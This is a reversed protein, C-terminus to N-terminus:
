SEDDPDDISGYTEVFEAGLQEWIDRYTKNTFLHDVLPYNDDCDYFNVHTAEYYFALLLEILDLFPVGDNWSIHNTVSEFGDNPVITPSGFSHVRIMKREEALLLEKARLSEAAGISHGYHIILGGADTGGMETALFKWKEALAHAQPTIYGMFKVLGCQLIDYTWGLTPRYVFHVNNHGHTDSIMQTQLICEEFPTLIGGIYSLRVNSSVEGRGVVGTQVSEPHFGTMVFRTDGILYRLFDELCERTFGMDELRQSLSFPSLGLYYSLSDYLESTSTFLMDWLSNWSFLGYHDVANMPDDRLFSYPNLGDYNALPDKTMWRGLKPDYFRYGFNLLGTSTNSRKSSFRWPNNLATDGIVEGEQNYILEEGHASYRYGEELEQTNPDILCTLSGRHDHIPALIRKRKGQLEIAIASGIEAGLGVGLVRLQNIEGEANMSGIENLGDYLHNEESSYKWKKTNSDWEHYIEKLCRNFADYQYNLLFSDKKLISRLRNLADYEYAYSETPSMKTLLNGNLDYTYFSDGDSILRNTGADYTSDKGETKRNSLSDYSYSAETHNLESTLRGLEDYTYHQDSVGLTDSSTMQTIRGDEDYGERPISANWFASTIETCKGDEYNKKLAGAKGIMQSELVQGDIQYKLYRHTYLKQNKSSLREITKLYASDYAYRIASGDPLTFFTRRGLHDYSYSLSSIAGIKEETTEGFSNYSRSVNEETLADETNILQGIADYTYRYDISRDSSYFRELRAQQNYEYYLSVGDAKHTAQVQGYANYEYSTRAQDKEGVAYIVASLAGSPLYEWATTVSNLRNGNEIIASIEETKRGLADYRYEVESLLVGISSRQVINEVRGLADYTSTTPAKNANGTIVQRVVQGRDNVTTLDALIEPKVEKHAEKRHLVEGTDTEIRLAELSQNEDREFITMRKSDPSQPDIDDVQSIIGRANYHLKQQRPAEDKSSSLVEILHGKADYTYEKSHGLANLEKVLHLANYIKEHTTMLKGARDFQEEKCRHGYRDYSYRKTLGDRGKIQALGGDLNYEYKDEAGDPYITKQIRNRATYQYSTEGGSADQVYILRGLADYRNHIVAEVFTGEANYAAPLTICDLQGLSNYSYRTVAGYSDTTSLHKGEKSYFKTVALGTQSDIQVHQFGNEDKQWLTESNGDKSEGSVLQGKADFDFHSADGLSNTMSKLRGQEDHQNYSSFYSEGDGDKLVQLVPDAQKSFVQERRELLEEQGTAINLIRQEIAHQQGNTESVIIKRESVGDLIQPDRSFGDDIINKQLRGNTEDYSSFCRLLVEDKYALFEAIKEQTEESYEYKRARGSDEEISTVKGSKYQYRTSYHEIGNDIPLGSDGLIITAECSGSLNGYLTKEILLGSEDYEFAELFLPNEESDLVSITKPRNSPTFSILDKRLIEKSGDDHILETVKTISSNNPDPLVSLQLKSDAFSLLPILLLNLFFIIKRRM